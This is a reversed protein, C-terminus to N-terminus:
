TTFNFRAGETSKESWTRWARKEGESVSRSALYENINSEITSADADSLGNRVRQQLASPTINSVMGKETYVSAPLQGATQASGQFLKEGRKRMASTHNETNETNAIEPANGSAIAGLGNERAARINTMDESTFRGSTKMGELQTETLNSAVRQDTLTATGMSSLREVPMSQINQTLQDLAGNLEEASANTSDLAESTTDIMGTDRTKSIESAQKNTYKGSERLAKVHSDTLHQAFEPSEITEQDLSLVEEDSMRRVQNGINKMAEARNERAKEHDEEKRNPNPKNTKARALETTVTSGRDAQQRVTNLRANQENARTRRQAKTESGAVSANEAARLGSGLTRDLGRAFAKSV